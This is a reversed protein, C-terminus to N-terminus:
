IEDIPFSPDFYINRINRGIEVQVPIPIGPDNIVDTVRNMMMRYLEAEEETPTAPAVLEPLSKRGDHKERGIGYKRLIKAIYVVEYRVSLVASTVQNSREITTGDMYDRISDIGQRLYWMLHSM